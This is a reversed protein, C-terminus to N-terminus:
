SEPIGVWIMSYIFSGLVFWMNNIVAAANYVIWRLGQCHPTAVMFPSMMFGFLTTPVCCQIYLQAAFYHLCIWLLYIGYIKLIFLVIRVVANALEYIINYEYIASIPKDKAFLQDTDEVDEEKTDHEIHFM